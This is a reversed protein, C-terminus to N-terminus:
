GGGSPYVDPRRTLADPKGGLRGPRYKVVFNFGSLYESWRAQRRNLIKTTTFYELNKHDTVVQVAYAAGELYCRWEKFAVFIALLEKDYIDYNLESPQLSRSYFAIPHVLNTESNLQSLVAAVSYDSADTEVFCQFEPQFHCLIPASTFSNKLQDFAAQCKLSWEWPTDKRLLSTLPKTIASYSHIFRRYFNAFGLFSQVEKVNKPVPWSDIASTKEKDM